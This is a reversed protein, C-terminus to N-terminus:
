TSIGLLEAVCEIQRGNTGVMWGNELNLWATLDSKTLEVIPARLKKGDRYHTSSVKGFVERLCVREKTRGEFQDAAFLAIDRKAQEVHDKHAFGHLTVTVPQVAFGKHWSNDPTGSLTMEFRRFDGRQAVINRLTDGVSGFEFEASGMYDCPILGNIYTREDATRSQDAQYKAALGEPLQFPSRPREIRQILYPHRYPKM